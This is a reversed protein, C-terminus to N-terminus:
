RTVDLDIQHVHGISTTGAYQKVVPKTWGGYPTFDAETVAVGDYNSDWLMRDAWYDHQSWGQRDFFWKGSYVGTAHGLYSDCIALSADVSERSVPLEVDLWLAELVYGAFLRLRQWLYVDSAPFVYGALKFHPACAALQQQTYSNGDLGTVAQVIVGVM